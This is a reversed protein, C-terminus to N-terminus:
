VSSDAGYDACSIIKQTTPHCPNSFLAATTNEEIVQGNELVLARHCFKKIISCNHTILLYSIKKQRQIKLLLELIAKQITADLATTPEDLVLIEPEVILARAIAIRQRQGGSFEHPYRPLCEPSLQVLDIMATIRANIDVGSLNPFHIRLGEQLCQQITLRPNLSSFPDQFVVQIKKCRTLRDMGAAANTSVFRVYGEHDILALLAMALTTKGSGSQGLIAINEGQKLTFTIDSLITQLKNSCFWHHTLARTVCLNTVQLVTHDETTPHCSLALQNAHLLNKTVQHQPKSFIQQCPGHEIIRGQNMVYLYDCFYQVMNLDHSILLLGMKTMRQRQHIMKLIDIQLSADLATTPEDAILLQPDNVLAMALLVRQRQGGSLEHPYKKAYDIREDHLHVEELARYMRITALEKTLPQHVMIAETIQKGINQLPNLAVMPEQLMLSISHNRMTNLEHESMMDLRQQNFLIRGQFSANRKQIQMILHATLTKGSGSEGVIAVSQGREIVLHDIILQFPDLPHFRYYLNEISLM